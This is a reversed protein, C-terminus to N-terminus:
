KNRAGTTLAAGEGPEPAFLTPIGEHLLRAGPTAEPDGARLRRAAASQDGELLGTADTAALWHGEKTIGIPVVDFKKRDIAKLISAASLLSVEHEGSRGGFLIGIRLKKKMLTGSGTQLLLHLITGDGPM